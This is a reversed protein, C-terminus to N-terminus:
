VKTVSFKDLLCIINTDRIAYRTDRSSFSRFFIPFVFAIVIRKKRKRLEIGLVIYEISYKQNSM